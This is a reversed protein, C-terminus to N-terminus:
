LGQNAAYVNALSQAFADGYGSPAGMPTTTVPTYTNPTYTQTEYTRRSEGRRKKKTKTKGSTKEVPASSIAEKTLTSTAPKPGGGFVTDIGGHFAAATEPDLKGAKVLEDIGAHAKDPTDFGAKKYKDLANMNAVAPDAAGAGQTVTNAFYGAFETALKKDGGTVLYALPNVAGIAQGQKETDIDFYRRGDELRAGGDKGVDFGSKDENELTWDQSDKPDGFFGAEQLAKRVADRQMQDGSKHGGMLGLAKTTVKDGLYAGPNVVGHSKDNLKDGKNRLKDTQGGLLKRDALQVGGWIGGTFYNAATDEATKRLAVAKQEDTMNSTLIGAAGIGAGIGSGLGSGYVGNAQLATNTAGAGGLVRGRTDKARIADYLQIAATANGIGQKISQAYSGQTVVSGDPATVGGDSYTTNGSGDTGTVTPTGGASQGGLYGGIQKVGEGVLPKLLDSENPKKSRYSQQAGIPSTAMKRYLGSQAEQEAQRKQEEPDFYYVM